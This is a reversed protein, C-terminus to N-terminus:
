FGVSRADRLHRDQDGGRAQHQDEVSGVPQLASPKWTGGLLRAHIRNLERLGNLVQDVEIGIIFGSPGPVSYCVEGLVISDETELKVAAGSPIARDLSIRMGRGSSDLATAPGAKSEGDLVTLLVPQDM